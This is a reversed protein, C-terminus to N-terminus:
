PKVNPWLRDPNFDDEDLTAPFQLRDYRYFEVEDGKHDFAIVLVPLHNEVGFGYLRRGGRPLGQEFGAPIVHELIDLPEPYDNRVQRGLVKVTGKSTDGKEAAQVLAAVHTLCSGFGAETIPHRSASRVFFSDHAVSFRKGAPTFPVDGAALLSHIKDEHLGKVYVAERGRGTEGVWKFYVSWPNKRFKFLMVEEPKNVGNVQERRTMRAIYSDIPNYADVAAKYLQAPTTPVQVLAPTPSPTLTPASAKVVPNMPVPDAPAAVQTIPPPQPNPSSPAQAPPMPPVPALSRSDVMGSRPPPPVPVLPVDNGRKDAAAASYSTPAKREGLNACGIMGICTLTGLIMRTANKGDLM